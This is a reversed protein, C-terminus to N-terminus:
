RKRIGFNVVVTGVVAFLFIAGILAGSFLLVEGEAITTTTPLSASASLLDPTAIMNPPASRLYTQPVLIQAPMQQAPPTYPQSAPVFLRGSCSMVFVLSLMVM